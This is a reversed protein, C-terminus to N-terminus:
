QFALFLNSVPKQSPHCTLRVNRSRNLAICHDLAVDVMEARQAEQLTHQGDELIRPVWSQQKHEILNFGELAHASINAVLAQIRQTLQHILYVRPSEWTEIQHDRTSWGEVIARHTNM